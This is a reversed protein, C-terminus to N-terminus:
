LLNLFLNLVEKQAPTLKAVKDETFVNDDNSFFEKLTIGFGDECINSLVEVTQCKEGREIQPIYNSSVGSKLALQYYTLGKKIRFEEIRQGLELKNM